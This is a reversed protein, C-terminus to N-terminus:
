MKGRPSLQHFIRTYNVGRCRPCFDLYEHTFKKAISSLQPEPAYPIGCKECVELNVSGIKRKLTIPFFKSASIEHRLDAAGEPCTSVCEGCLICQYNSFWFIRSRGKDMSELTGTPCSLECAACGTCKTVKLRAGCFLFVATILMVEGSLVHISWMNKGLFSAADLSDHTLLYGTLFPMATVIILIYDSISSVSRIDSSIMRRLLFFAALGLFILTMWDVWEDPLATWSWGFRSEEWLGIHGSFWIPVIIM